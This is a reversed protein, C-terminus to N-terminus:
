TLDVDVHNKEIFDNPNIVEDHFGFAELWNSVHKVYRIGEYGEGYMTAKFYEVYRSAVDTPSLGSKLLELQLKKGTWKKKAEERAGRKFQKPISYWFDSFSDSKTNNEATVTDITGGAACTGGVTSNSGNRVNSPIRASRSAGARPEVNWVGMSKAGKVLLGIIAVQRSCSAETMWLEVAQNQEETFKVGISKREDRM